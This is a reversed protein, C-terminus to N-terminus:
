NVMDEFEEVIREFLNVVERFYIEDFFSGFPSYSSGDYFNMLPEYGWYKYGWDEEEFAGLTVQAQTKDSNDYFLHIELENNANKLYSKFKAENECNDDAADLYDSLNRLNKVHGQIQAKGMVDIKLWAEKANANDFDEDDYNGSGFAALNVNPLGEISGSVACTVLAVEGKQLTATCAAGKNADYAAQSVIMKYGNCFDLSSTVSVSTKSLDFEEGVINKLNINATAIMVNKGDQTLSVEIKEPLGVTYQTRDYYEKYISYDNNYDSEYDRWDDINLLHVKKVAGSTVLKLICQKGNADKFIFQLDDAKSYVWRMGEAIFHGTYNSAMILSKYNDYIAIDKGYESEWVVEETQNVFELADDFAKQGWKDVADWDYDEDYTLQVYDLLSGIHEFDAPKVENLLNKAIQELKEKQEDPTLAEGESPTNGDSCAALTLASLSVIM